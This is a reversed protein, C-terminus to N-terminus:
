KREDKIGNLISLVNNVLSSKDLGAKLTKHTKSKNRKKERNLVSRLVKRKLKCKRM